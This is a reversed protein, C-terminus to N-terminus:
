EEASQRWRPPRSAQASTGVSGRARCCRTAAYAPAVGWPRPPSQPPARASQRTTALPPRPRPARARPACRRRGRPAVRSRARPRPRPSQRSRGRRRAALPDRATRDIGRSREPGRARPRPPARGRRTASLPARAREQLREDGVRVRHERLRGRGPQPAQPGLRRVRERGRAGRLPRMPAAAVSASASSGSVGSTPM